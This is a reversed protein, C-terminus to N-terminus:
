SPANLEEIADELLAAGLELLDHALSQIEEPQLGNKSYKVLKIILGLAKMWLRKKVKMLM